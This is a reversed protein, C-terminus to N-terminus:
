LPPLEALFRYLPAAAMFGKKLKKVLSKSYFADDTEIDQIFYVTKRRYWDLVDPPLGDPIKPRAYEDGQILFGAKTMAKMAAMFAGQRANIRARVAKIVAPTAQYYGMGYRCGDPGIGMYFTPRTQWDETRHRFAIWQRVRYPSKDKSFRVDKHIRSVAVGKPDTDFGPDIKLMDPALADVLLRLPTRVHDIYDQKHAEFWAKDNNKALNKLFPLTKKSFGQFSDEVM